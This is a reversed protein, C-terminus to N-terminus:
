PFQHHGIASLQIMSYSTDVLRQRLDEALKASLDVADNSFKVTTFAMRAVHVVAPRIMDDYLNNTSHYTKYLSVAHTKINKSYLTMTFHIESPIGHSM